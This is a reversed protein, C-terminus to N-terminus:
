SAHLKSVNLDPLELDAASLGAPYTPSKTLPNSTPIVETCDTLSAQDQGNLSMDTM